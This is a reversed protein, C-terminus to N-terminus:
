MLNVFQKCSTLRLAEALSGIYGGNQRYKVSFLQQMEDNHIVATFDLREPRPVAFFYIKNRRDPKTDQFNTFGDKPVHSADPRSPERIRFILLTGNASMGMLGISTEDVVALHFHRGV